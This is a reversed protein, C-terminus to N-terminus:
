KKYKGTGNRLRSLTAPTLNLYLAIQQLSLRELLHAYKQCFYQYRELASGLTICINEEALVSYRNEAINKLFHTWELSLSVKKIFEDYNMVLLVSDELAQIFNQSPRKLIMDAYSSMFVGENAFHNIYERENKLTHYSKMLGSMVLAVKNSPDGPHLFFQGAKVSEIKVIPSIILLVSLPIPSIQNMAPHILHLAQNINHHANM